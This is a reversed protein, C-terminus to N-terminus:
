RSPDCTGSPGVAVATSSAAYGELVRQARRIAQDALDLWRDLEGFEFERRELPPLPPSPALLPATGTPGGTGAAAAALSAASPRGPRRGPLPRRPPASAERLPALHKLGYLRRKSRHTVESAIGLVVFGELLRTANKTAMGLAQGLSTASLLPAAALIDIAAAARSDRRRGAVARRAAFWHRELATLLAVGDEAEEAVADLFEGTWVERAWPTDARLARAGTLLPCPLATVGRRSWYAALAARLPPREGGRDLWAHVGLAAGLLPSHGDAVGELHAAAEAIAAQRVEDPASFWRYLGFAHHAAAFTAGRDILAPSGGLRFRVGEILAALHWPDIAQGDFMAQRQVADLRARYSWAPALPHRTLASDLRAAAGAARELPAALAMPLRESRTQANDRMM